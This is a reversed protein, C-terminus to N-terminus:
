QVMRYYPVAAFNDTGKGDCYGMDSESTGDIRGYSIFSVGEMGNAQAAFEIDGWALIQAGYGQM